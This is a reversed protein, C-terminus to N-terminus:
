FLGREAAVVDSKRRLTPVVSGILAGRVGAAAMRRPDRIAKLLGAKGGRIAEGLGEGILGVGSGITGARAVQGATFQRGALREVQKERRSKAGSRKLAARINKRKTREKQWESLTMAAVKVIFSDHRNIM